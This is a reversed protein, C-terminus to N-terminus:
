SVKPRKSAPSEFSTERSKVRGQGTPTKKVNRNPEGFISAINPKEEPQFESRTIISPDGGTRTEAIRVDEPFKEM